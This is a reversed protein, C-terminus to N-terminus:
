PVTALAPYLRGTKQIAWFILVNTEKEKMKISALCLMPMSEWVSQAEEKKKQLEGGRQRLNGTEKSVQM